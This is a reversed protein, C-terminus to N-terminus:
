SGMRGHLSDSSTNEERQFRLEIQMSGLSFRCIECLTQVVATKVPRLVKLIGNVDVQIQLDVTKKGINPLFQLAAKRFILTKEDHQCAMNLPNLTVIGRRSIQQIKFLRKNRFVAATVICDHVVDASNFIEEAMCAAVALDAGNQQMDDRRDFPLVARFETWSDTDDAMNSDARRIIKRITQLFGKIQLDGVYGGYM